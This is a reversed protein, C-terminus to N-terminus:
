KELVESLESLPIRAQFAGLAYAAVQYPPFLVVLTEGELSFNQFNSATPAVGEEFFSGAPDASLRRALETVIQARASAAIRELYNSDKTFLDSLMIVEGSKNFTLTLYYVNPHAGLTDEYITYVYSVYSGGETTKYELALSYKRDPGLGQISVDEQTLSEFNGNRKFEAIRDALAQEIALRVKADANGSLTTKGPYTAVITYYPAEESYQYDGSPTSSGQLVHAERNAAEGGGGRQAFLGFLIAVAGLAVLVIGIQKANMDTM